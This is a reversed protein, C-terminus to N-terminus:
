LITEQTELVSSEEGEGVYIEECDLHANQLIEIAKQTENFLHYYMKEYDAM